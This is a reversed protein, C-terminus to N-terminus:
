SVTLTKDMLKRLISRAIDDAEEHSMATAGPALQLRRKLSSRRQQLEDPGCVAANIGWLLDEVRSERELGEIREKDRLGFFAVLTRHFPQAWVADFPQGFGAAVATM